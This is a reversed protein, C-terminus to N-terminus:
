KSERISKKQFEGYYMKIYKRIDQEEWSSPLGSLDEMKKGLNLAKAAIRTEIRAREASGINEILGFKNLQQKLLKNLSIDQAVSISSSYIGVFLLYAGAGLFSITVLGFPPYIGYTLIVAQNSAFFIILGYATLIMFSKITENRTKSGLIWFAAGFLIGGIPKAASFFLTYVMNFILSQNFYSAFTQLLAPQFQLLFYILPLSILAWYKVKGLKEAHNRLQLSTAIWLGVYSLLSSIRIGNVLM